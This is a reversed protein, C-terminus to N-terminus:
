VLGRLAREVARRLEEREAKHLEPVGWKLFLYRELRAVLVEVSARRDDVKTRGRLSGDRLWRVLPPILGEVHDRGLLMRSPVSWSRWSGDEEEEQFVIRDVGLWLQPRGEEDRPGEELSGTRGHYSLEGLEARARGAPTESWVLVEAVPCRRM